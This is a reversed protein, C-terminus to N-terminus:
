NRGIILLEELVDDLEARCVYSVNESRDWSVLCIMRTELPVVDEMLVSYKGCPKKLRYCGLRQVLRFTILLPNNGQGRLVLGQDLSGGIQFQFNFVCLRVQVSLPSYMPFAHCPIGSTCFTWRYARIPKRTARGIGLRPQARDSIAIARAIEM